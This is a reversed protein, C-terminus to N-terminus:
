FGVVAALGVTSRSQDFADFPETDRRWRRWKLAYEFRRGLLNEFLRFRIGIERQTIRDVRDTADAAAEPFTLRGRSEAVEFGVHRNLYHIVRVTVSRDLFFNNDEFVAFGVRREGDLRLTTGSGLRYALEAECVLESLDDKTPDDLDVRTQGLSLSGSLRGDEGIEIGPLISTERADRGSDPDDFDIAATEAEMTLRTNGTLRYAVLVRSRRDTRDLRLATNQNDPDDYSWNSRERGIEAFTRWGLRVIVGGGVRAERRELRNDFESTPRDQRDLLGLDAFVGFRNFPVTVRATGEQNLFNVESYKRYLTYDLKEQFTVFARDGFLVLGELRPSVTVRYDGLAEEPPDFFVNDDYGLNSVGIGPRVRLPGWKLFRALDPPELPDKQAYSPVPGLGFLLTLVVIFRKM